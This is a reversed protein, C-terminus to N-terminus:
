APNQVSRSPGTASARVATAPRDWILHRPDVAIMAAAATGFIPGLAPSVGLVHAVMAGLYWASYFWLFTALARKKMDVADARIARRVMWM